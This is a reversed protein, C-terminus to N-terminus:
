TYEYLYVCVYLCFVCVCVQVIECSLLHVFPYEFVVRVFGCVRICVLVSVSLYVSVCFICLCEIVCAFM